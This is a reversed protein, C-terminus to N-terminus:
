FFLKNKIFELSELFLTFHPFFQCSLQNGAATLNHFKQENKANKIFIKFKNNKRIQILLNQKNIKM